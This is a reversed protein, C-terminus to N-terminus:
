ALPKHSVGWFLRISYLLSFVTLMEEILEGQNIFLVASSLLATYALLSPPPLLLAFFASGRKTFQLVLNLATPLILIPAFLWYLHSWGDKAFNHVNTEHQFNFRNFFEPTQWNFIRQGWSIEEMAWFFLGVAILAWFLQLAIEPATKSFKRRKVIIGVLLTITGFLVAVTLDEFLNDESYLDAYAPIQKVIFYMFSCILAAGLLQSIWFFYFNLRRGGGLDERERLMLEWGRGGRFCLACILAAYFVAVSILGCILGRLFIAGEPTILGDPSIFRLILSM